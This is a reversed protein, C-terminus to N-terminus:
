QPVADDHECARDDSGTAAHQDVWENEIGLFQDDDGGHDDQGGEDAEDGAEGGVACVDCVVQM